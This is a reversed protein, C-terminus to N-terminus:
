ARVEVARCPIKVYIETGKGQASTVNLVGGLKRAREEMVPIGFHGNLHAPKGSQKMGRGDDKVCIAVSEEAYSLQVLIQRPDAHRLANTMAEQAICLLHHVYDPALPIEEGEVNLKIAVGERSGLAGIAQSLATSLHGTTEHDARLDWIIRRAEAQCHKVM